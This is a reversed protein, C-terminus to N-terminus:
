KGKRGAVFILFGVGALVIKWAAIGAISAGSAILTIALAAVTGAAIKSLV